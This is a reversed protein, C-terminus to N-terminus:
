YVKGNVMSFYYVTHMKNNAFCKSTLYQTQMEFKLYQMTFHSFTDGSIFSRFFKRNAMEPPVQEM